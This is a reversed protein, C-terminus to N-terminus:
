DTPLPEDLLECPITDRVARWLLDTLGPPGVFGERGRQKLLEDLRRKYSVNAAGAGCFANHLPKALSCTSSGYLGDRQAQEAYDLYGALVARRTLPRAEGHYFLRDARAMMWPNRYAERGVMVGKVPGELHDQAAELSQVGGNLTFSMDPFALALRHVTEPHLPPISRNQAPSLGRLVCCRAHVIMRRVGGARVAHVFEVLEDYSDRGTVGIRCKVSIDTHTVRRNMALLISTVLSPDLMLEAGFGAKKAKQSPCGCNLNIETFNGFSECLYAAEGLIEPVCGGLQVALPYESVIDNRSHGIFDELNHANHVLASDMTMETYLLTKQTILRMFYRWHRDTWQIMPAVSFPYPNSSQM